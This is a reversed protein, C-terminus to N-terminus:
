QKKTKGTKNRLIDSSSFGIMELVAHVIKERDPIASKELVPSAPMPIDPCTLRKIPADLYDFVHEFIQYSIESSVGAMPAEEATILVRHTKKISEVITEIDIPKLSRLDILEANVGYSALEDVAHMAEQTQWSWSIITIDTGKRIRKAYGLPEVIRVKAPVHEKISYLLKHEVFVVPNDDRISAKLLMKADAPTAPAVVKLGPTHVFWATLTQSHTPGYCRGGGAPTRIVIPCKAQKGLVYRLKASQNVIQDMALAIFDMFMIEVVPRLGTLATGIAMGVFSNESIPTEIVRECGFRELLGRTIGFAGGYVGIDEGMLFVKKDASMEEVLAERLAETYTLIRM